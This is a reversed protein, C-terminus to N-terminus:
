LSNAASSRFYSKKDHPPPRTLPHFFITIHALYTQTKQKTTTTKLDKVSLQGLGLSSYNM